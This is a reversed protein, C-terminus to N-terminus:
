EKLGPLKPLKPKFEGRPQRVRGLLKELVTSRDVIPEPNLVEDLMKYYEERLNLKPM